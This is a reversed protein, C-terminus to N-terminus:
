IAEIHLESEFVSSPNAGEQEKGYGQHEACIYIKLIFV